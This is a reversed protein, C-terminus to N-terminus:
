RRELNTKDYKKVYLQCNSGFDPWIYSRCFDPMDVCSPLVPLEIVAVCEGAGVRSIRGTATLQWRSHICTQCSQGPYIAM